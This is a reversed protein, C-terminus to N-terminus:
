AISAVAAAQKRQWITYPLIIIANLLLYLLIVAGFREEPLNATAIALAIGPHRCASSIALAVREEREPGGLLHGAALAAVVFLVIAVITGNGILAWITSLNGAVLALAALPLLAKGVLLVPREIRHAFTPLIARVTMGVALPLLASMFVVRAVTMPPMKFPQGFYRALFNVLLPVIVVSLLAATAMLAIAYARRGGAKDLRNPILPPLPSIALAVLAIEVAPRFDFLRALAVAILPVVVFMALVSRAFLGPRCILYIVDDVTADLGFAFVTALVSIQFALTVLHEVDM